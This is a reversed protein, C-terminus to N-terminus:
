HHGVVYDSSGSWKRVSTGVIRKCRATEVAVEIWTYQYLRRRLAKWLSPGPNHNSVTYRRVASTPVHGGGVAVANSAM